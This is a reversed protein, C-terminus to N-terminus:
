VMFIRNVTFIKKCQKLLESLVCFLVNKIMMCSVTVPVKRMLVSNNSLSLTLSLDKYFCAIRKLCSDLWRDFAGFKKRELFANGTKRM